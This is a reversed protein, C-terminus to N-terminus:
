RDMDRSCFDIAAHALIEALQVCSTIDVWEVAAHAGQGHPGIVVTDVGAESTLASDMWASDGMVDPHKGLVRAAATSVCRAILADPTTEFPDRHFSTRWTSEFTPDDNRLSDLLNAIENEITEQTEPPVTRREIQLKCSPSYTSIGVGGEILAAHLSPPGLLPHGPGAQLDSLLAELQQLVRGMRINADIGIQYRSGHAAYGQTEIELWTFGRHAVCLALSSPETVIVADFDLEGRDRRELLDVTGISAYEEDAVAAILVDGALTQGSVAIARTAEICAALSGKMDYSGRGYLRDNEIVPDFPAEMGEVGVTDYHANLMLTPGEGTGVLRGVVSPRGPESEYREVQLGAERMHRATVEAIAAEGEAALALSPNISNTAVLEVLSQTLRTSDVSIPMSLIKRSSARLVFGQVLM